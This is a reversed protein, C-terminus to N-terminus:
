GPRLLQRCLIGARIEPHEEPPFLPRSGRKQLAEAIADVEKRSKVLFALHDSIVFENGSPKKRRVRRPKSQNIFIEFDGNSFGAFDKGSWIQKFGTANFLLKYFKLSKKLNSIELCIHGLSVRIKEAM